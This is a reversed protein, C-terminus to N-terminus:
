YKSTNPFYVKWALPLVKAAVAAKVLDLGIHALFGGAIASSLTQGPM